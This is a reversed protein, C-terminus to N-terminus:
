NYFTAAEDDYPKGHKVIKGAETTAAYRALFTETKTALETAARDTVEDYPSVFLVSCGCLLLSLLLSSSVQLAPRLRHM